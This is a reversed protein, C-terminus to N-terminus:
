PSSPTSPISIGDFDAFPMDVVPEPRRRQEVAELHNGFLGMPHKPVAVLPIGDSCAHLLTQPQVESRWWWRGDERMEDDTAFRMWTIGPKLADGVLYSVPFTLREENEGVELVGIQVARATWVKVHTSRWRSCDNLRAVRAHRLAISPLLGSSAGKNNAM